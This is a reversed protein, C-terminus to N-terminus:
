QKSAPWATIQSFRDPAVWEVHGDAFGVAAGNGHISLPEYVIVTTAPNSIKTSDIGAGMYIYDCHGSLNENIWTASKANEPSVTLPTSNSSPDVLTQMTQPNDPDGIYPLAEVLDPPYKGNHDNAYELCAQVIQRENAMSTVQDANDRAHMLTPALMAPLAPGVVKTLMETEGILPMAGIEPSMLASHVGGSDIWTFAAYATLYPYTKEIPPLEYDQPIVNQQKLIPLIVQKTYDLLDAIVGKSEVFAVSTLSNPVGLKQEIALLDTNSNLPTNTNDKAAADLVVQTSFGVFLKNKYVSITPALGPLPLALTDYPINGSIVHTIAMPVGQAQLMANIQAYVKALAASFAVSDSLPHVAVPNSLAGSSDLTQYVAWTGSLPALLDKQLDLGLMQNVQAIQAQFQEPPTPPSTQAMMQSISDLYHSFDASTIYALDADAPVLQYDQDTLVHTPIYTQMMTGTLKDAANDIGAFGESQWDAGNFGGTASFWKFSNFGYLKIVPDFQSLDSPNQSAMIQHMLSLGGSVDAYITIAADAQLPAIAATFEPASALSESEDSAFYSKNAMEEFTDKNLKSDEQVIMQMVTVDGHQYVIVKGDTDSSAQATNEQDALSQLLSTIQLTDTGGKVALLILLNVQGSHDAPLMSLSLGAQHTALLRALQWFQQASKQDQPSTTSHQIANNYALHILQPTGLADFIAKLNSQDFQKSLDDGGNWGIYFLTNGPFQDALPAAAGIVPSLFLSMAATLMIMALRM